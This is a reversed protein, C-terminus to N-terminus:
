GTLPIPTYRLGVIGADDLSSKVVDGLFLDTYSGPVRFARSSIGDAASRRFAPFEVVRYSGYDHIISAEPDVVNLTAIVQVIYMREEGLFGEGILRIDPAAVMSLVSWARSDCVWDRIEPHRFINPHTGLEGPDWEFNALSEFIPYPTEWDHETVDVPFAEEGGFLYGYEDVSLEAMFAM